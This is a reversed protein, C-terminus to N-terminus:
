FASTTSLYARDIRRDFDDAITLPPGFPPQMTGLTHSTKDTDLDDMLYQLGVVTYHDEHLRLDAQVTGGYNINRDDSTSRVGVDIMPTPQMEVRNAFLRNVTQYYVDAHIKRVIP